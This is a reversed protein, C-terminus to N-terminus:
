RVGAAADQHRVSHGSPPSPPKVVTPTGPHCQPERELTRGGPPGQRNSHGHNRATVQARVPVTVERLISKM